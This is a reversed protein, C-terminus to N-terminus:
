YDYIHELAGNARQVDRIVRAPDPIRVDLGLRQHGPRSQVRMRFLERAGDISRPASNRGTIVTVLIRQNGAIEALDYGREALRILLDTYAQYRRTRILTRGGGLDRVVTVGRENSLRGPEPGVVVTHIESAAAGLTAQSAQGIIAAYAVKIAYEVSVSARRELKRALHPGRWPTERWFQALRAGFPYEYWPTQHLFGAYAAMDRAVFADEATRGPGRLWEFLRGFTHEYAGKLALEATFSWGITSLMVRTDMAVAERATAERTLVCLSRWFGAIQEGYAFDSPDGRELVAALDQHAYVIHWEPYTLYSDSERRAYGPDTVLPPPKRYAPDPSRACRGEVWVIPAAIVLLVVVLGLAVRRAWRRM